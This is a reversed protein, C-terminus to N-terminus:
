TPIKELDIFALDLYIDKLHNFDKDTTLGALLGAVVATVALPWLTIVPRAREVAVWATAGALALVAAHIWM